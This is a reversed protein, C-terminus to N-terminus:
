MNIQSLLCFSDCSLNGWTTVLFYLQFLDVRVLWRAARKERIHAKM